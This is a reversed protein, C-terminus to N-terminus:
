ARPEVVVPAHLDFERLAKTLAQQAQVVVEEGMPHRSYRAEEFLSTLEHATERSIGLRETCIAEIERATLTSLDGSGRVIRQLWRAYVQIVRERPTGGTAESLQAIAAALDARLEQRRRDTEPLTGRRVTLMPIVLVAAVVGIGAVLTYIAWPPFTFGLVSFTGNTINGTANNEPPGGGGTSNNQPPVVVRGPPSGSGLYHAFFVFGTLLLIIVLAFVIPRTPIISTGGSARNLLMFVVPIVILLVLLVESLTAAENLTLGGSPSSPGTPPPIYPSALLAAAIGFAIAGLVFTV